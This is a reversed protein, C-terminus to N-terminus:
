RLLGKARADAVWSPYESMMRDYLEDDGVGDLDALGFFGANDVFRGPLEDLSQLFGFGASGGGGGDTGGRGLGLFQWFVPEYSSAM